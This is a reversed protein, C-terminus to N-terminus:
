LHLTIPRPPLCVEFVPSSNDGRNEDPTLEALTYFHLAQGGLNDVYHHSLGYEDLKFESNHAMPALPHAPWNLVTLLDGTSGELLAVLCCVTDGQDEHFMVVLIDLDSCHSVLDCAWTRRQQPMMVVSPDRHRAYVSVVKHHIGDSEPYVDRDQEIVLKREPGSRQVAYIGLRTGNWLALRYGKAYFLLSPCGSHSGGHFASGEVRQGTSANTLCFESATKDATMLHYLDVSLRLFQLSNYIKRLVPPKGKFSYTLPMGCGTFGYCRLNESILRFRAAVNGNTSEPYKIEDWQAGYIISFEQSNEFFPRLDFLELIDYSNSKYGVVLTDEFNQVSTLGNGFVSDSVVFAGTYRLPYLHWYMVVFRADQQESDILQSSFQSSKIYICDPEQCFALDGFRHSSSSIWVKLIERGTGASAFRMVHNNFPHTETSILLDNNNVPHDPPTCGRIDRFTSHFKRTVFLVSHFEKPLCTEPKESRVCIHRLTLRPEASHQVRQLLSLRRLSQFGILEGFRYIHSPSTLKGSLVFASGATNKLSLHLTRLRAKFTEARNGSFSTPFQSPISGGRLVHDTWFMECSTRCYDGGSARVIWNRYAVRSASWQQVGGHIHKRKKHPPISPLDRSENDPGSMM